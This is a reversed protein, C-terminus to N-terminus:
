PSRQPKQCMAQQRHSAPEAKEQVQHGTEAPLILCPLRNKMCRMQRSRFPTQPGISRSRVNTAYSNSIYLCLPYLFVGDFHYRKLRFSANLPCYQRSISKESQLNGRVTRNSRAGRFKIITPHLLNELLAVLKVNLCIGLPNQRPM